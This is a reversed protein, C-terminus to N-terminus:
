FTIETSVFIVINEGLLLLNAVEFLDLQNM